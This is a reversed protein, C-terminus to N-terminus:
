FLSVMMFVGLPAFRQSFTSPISHIPEQTIPDLSRVAQCNDGCSFLKSVIELESRWLKGGAQINVKGRPSFKNTFLVQITCGIM